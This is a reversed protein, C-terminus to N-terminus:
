DSSIAVVNQEQSSTDVEAKLGMEANNLAAAASSIKLSGTGGAAALSQQITIAKAQSIIQQELKNDSTIETMNESDNDTDAGAGAEAM